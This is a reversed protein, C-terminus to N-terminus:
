GTEPETLLEDLARSKQFPEGANNGLHCGAVPIFDRPAFIRVDTRYETLCAACQWIIISDRAGIALQEGCSPCPIDITNRQKGM